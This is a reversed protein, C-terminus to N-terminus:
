RGTGHEHVIKWGSDTLLFVLTQRGAAEVRKGNRIFSVEPYYTAIGVNDFIDIKLDKVQYSAESMSSFFEAESQNTSIVDQREFNRPGFKTFKDSLFHINQLAKINPSEIDKKIRLVAERIENQAVREAETQKDEGAICSGSICLSAIVYILQKM